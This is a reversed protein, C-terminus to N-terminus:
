DVPSGQIPRDSRSSSSSPLNAPRGAPGATINLPSAAGIVEYGSLVFVPLQEDLHPDYAKYSAFSGWFKYEYDNDADGKTLKRDPRIAKGPTEQLAVWKASGWSQDSRKVFGWGMGGAPDTMRHALWFVEGSTDGQRYGPMPAAIRPDNALHYLPSGPKLPPAVPAIEGSPPVYKGDDQARSHLSLGSLLGLLAALTLIRKAM